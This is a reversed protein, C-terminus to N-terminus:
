ECRVMKLRCILFDAAEGPTAGQHFLAFLAYSIIPSESYIVRSTQWAIETVVAEFWEDKTKPDRVEESSYGNITSEDEDEYSEGNYDM